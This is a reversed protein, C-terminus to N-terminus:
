QNPEFFLRIEHIKPDLDPEERTVLMRLKSSTVPNLCDYGVDPLGDLTNLENGYGTRVKGSKWATQAEFKIGPHWHAILSSLIRIEMIDKKCM